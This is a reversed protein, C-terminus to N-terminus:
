QEEGTDILGNDIKLGTEFVDYRYFSLDDQVVVLTLESEGSITCVGRFRNRMRALTIVLRELDYAKIEM